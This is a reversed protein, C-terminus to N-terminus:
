GAVVRVCPPVPVIRMVREKKAIQGFMLHCFEPLNGRVDTVVMHLHNSMFVAAHVLVGHREVAEAAGRAGDESRQPRESRGMAQPTQKAFTSLGHLIGSVRAQYGATM